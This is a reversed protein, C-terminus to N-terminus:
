ETRVRPDTDIHGLCFPWRFRFINFTMRKSLRPQYPIIESRLLNLGLAHRRSSPLWDCSRCSLAESSFTRASAVTPPDPRKAQPKLGVRPVRPRFFTRGVQLSKRNLWTSNLSDLVWPLLSTDQDALVEPSQLFVEAAGSRSFAQESQVDGGSEQPPLRFASALREIWCTKAGLINFIYSSAGHQRSAPWRNGKPHYLNVSGVTILLVVDKRSGVDRKLFNDM